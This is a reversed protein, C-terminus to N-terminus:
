FTPPTTVWLVKLPDTGINKYGHPRTSVFFFSDGPHLEYITEDVELEMIGELVYGMEEGEHTITGASGEGPEVRHISAELLNAGSQSMLWEISTGTGERTHSTDIVPRAGKRMVIDDGSSSTITLDAITLGLESVIRHLMQLSPNIKDNEIKSLM